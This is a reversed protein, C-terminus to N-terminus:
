KNNKAGQTIWYLIKLKEEPLTYAAHGSSIVKRYLRSEEAPLTVYDGSVLSEYSRDARLDPDKSGGHCAACKKELLPQIVAGFYVSDVPDVTEVLFSHHECSSLIAAGAILVFILAGFIRRMNRYEM